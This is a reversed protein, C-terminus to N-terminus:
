GVACLGRMNDIGSHKNNKNENGDGTKKRQAVREWYDANYKKKKQKLEEKHRERWAKAYERNKNPNAKHWERMYERRAEKASETM